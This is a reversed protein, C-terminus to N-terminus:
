STCAPTSSRSRSRSPWAPSRSSPLAASAHETSTAADAWDVVTTTGSQAAGLLGILTATYVDDPEYHPGYVAPSLEPGMEERGEGYNRFLSRWAHRHTDIFGPMVIADEAEIVDANRARLGMGIEVIRGEDVVVDAKTYNPTRAGLTLVCGGRIMYRTM